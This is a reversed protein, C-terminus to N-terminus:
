VMADGGVPSDVPSSTLDELPAKTLELEGIVTKLDADLAAMMEEAKQTLKGINDSSADDMDDNPGRTGDSFRRLNCQFRYYSQSRMQNLQYDVTDSVGDFVVNLIPRAWGILGWDEAKDCPISRELEGTGLSVVLYRTANPYIKRASALACMAPNNAFVGGDVLCLPAGGSRSKVRAPDFYTPAASTARAASRMLVDRDEKTEGNSLRKGQAKWSKFFHPSRNQIDYATILVDVRAESIWTDGFQDKLVEEVGDSSYKADALGGLSVFGDWFSRSFIDEGRERYLDIVDGATFAPGSGRDDPKTLGLALLGGTSTGAIFHFLDSIRKGTSTEIRDLLMAPIIGRIGGGDIALIRATGPM